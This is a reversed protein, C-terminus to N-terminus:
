RDMWPSETAGGAQPAVGPQQIMTGEGAQPAVGPQQIMTGGGAQTPQTPPFLLHFPDMQLLRVSESDVPLDFVGQGTRSRLGTDLLQMRAANGPSILNRLQLSFGGLNPAGLAEAEANVRKAQEALATALRPDGGQARYVTFLEELRLAEDDFRSYPSVFEGVFHPLNAPGSAVTRVFTGFDKWPLTATSRVRDWLSPATLARITDAYGQVTVQDSELLRPLDPDSSGTSRAYLENRQQKFQSEVQRRFDQSGQRYEPRLRYEAEQRALQGLETNYEVVREKPIPGVGSKVLSVLRSLGEGQGYQEAFDGGIFEAIHKAQAVDGRGFLQAFRGGRETKTRRILDFMIQEGQPTLRNLDLTKMRDVVDEVNMSQLTEPDILANMTLEKAAQRGAMVNNKLVRMDPHAVSLAPDELLEDLLKMGEVRTGEDSLLRVGRDYAEEIEPMKALAEVQRLGIEAMKTDVIQRRMQVDFQQAKLTNEFALQRQKSEMEAVQLQRDLSQNLRAFASEERRLALAQDQQRAQMGFQREQQREERRGADQSMMFQLMQQERARQQEQIAANQVRQQGFMNAMGAMAQGAGASIMMNNFPDAM